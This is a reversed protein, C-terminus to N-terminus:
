IGTLPPSLFLLPHLYLGQQCGKCSFSYCVSFLSSLWSRNTLESSHLMEWSHAPQKEVACPFWWERRPRGLDLRRGMLSNLNVCFAAPSDPGLLLNPFTHTIVPLAPPLPCGRWTSCGPRSLPPTCSRPVSLKGLAPVWSSAVQCQLCFPPMPPASRTYGKIFASNQSCSTSTCFLLCFFTILISLWGQPFSFFLASPFSCWYCSKMSSTRFHTVGKDSPPTLCLSSM